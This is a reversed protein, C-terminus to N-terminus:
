LLLLLIFKGKGSDSSERLHNANHSVSRSSNNNSNDNNHELLLHITNTLSTELIAKVTSVSLTCSRILPSYSLSPSLSSLMENLQLKMGSSSRLVALVCVAISMLMSMSMLMLMLVPMPMLMMMVCRMVLPAALAWHLLTRYKTM